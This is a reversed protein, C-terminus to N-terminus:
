QPSNRWISIIPSIRPVDTPWHVYPRNGNCFAGGAESCADIQINILESPPWIRRWNLGCILWHRWWNLDAQLDGLRCKHKPSKLSSILNFITRIHAWGWPVMHAAWCLKGALSELQNRLAHKRQKFSDLLDVLDRLKEAKLSLLGAVTDIQVSLFVLQQTPDVIKNWNIQFGLGCLTMILTDFTSKCSDFVPGWVFFIKQIFLWM